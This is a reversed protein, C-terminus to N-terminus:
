RPALYQALLQIHTVQAVADRAGVQLLQESPKAGHAAGFHDLVAVGPAALTKSEHLHVVILGGAFRDLTQVQLLVVPPGHGDVLRPRAFLAGAAATSIAAATAVAPM